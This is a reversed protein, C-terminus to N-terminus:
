TVVSRLGLKEHFEALTGEIYYKTNDYTRLVVVTGTHFERLRDHQSFYDANSSNWDSPTQETVRKISGIPISTKTLTKGKNEWGIAFFGSREECKYDVEEFSLFPSAPRLGNTANLGEQSINAAARSADAADSAASLALLELFM